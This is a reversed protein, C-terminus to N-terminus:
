RPRPIALFIAQGEHDPDIRDDRNLDLDATFVIVGSNTIGAPGRVHLLQGYATSSNFTQRDRAVITPQGGYSFLMVGEDTEPDPEGTHSADLLGGVAVAAQNNVIAKGLILEGGRLDGDLPLLRGGRAVAEVGSTAALYIAQRDATDLSGSADTDVLVNLAAQNRDNLGQLDGIMTHGRELRGSRALTLIAPSNRPRFLFAGTEDANSQGSRALEAVFAVNGPENIVPSRPELVQGELVRDGSRVIWRKQDRDSVVVTSSLSGDRDVSAEWAVRGNDNIARSGLLINAVRGDLLPGGARALEKLKGRTYLFIAFTDSAPDFRGDGNLDLNALLLVEGQSNVQLGNERVGLFQGTGLTEGIRAIRRLQNRAAVYLAENEVGDGGRVTATFVRAASTRMAMAATDVRRIKGGPVSDDRGILRVMRGNSWLYLGQDENGGFPQREALFMVQGGPTVGQVSVQRFTGFNSPRNEEVITRLVFPPPASNGQAVLTERAGVLLVLLCAGGLGWRAARIAVRRAPVRARCRNTENLM